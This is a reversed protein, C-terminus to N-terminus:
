RAITLPFNKIDSIGPHNRLPLRLLNGISDFDLL